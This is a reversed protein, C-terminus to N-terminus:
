AQGRGVPARGYQGVVERALGVDQDSLVPGPVLRAPGALEAAREGRSPRGAEDAIVALEHHANLQEVGALDEAVVLLETATSVDVSPTEQCVDLTSAKWFPVTLWNSGTGAPRRATPDAVARDALGVSRRYGHVSAKALRDASPPM